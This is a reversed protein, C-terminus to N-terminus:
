FPDGSSFHETGFLPSPFYLSSANTGPPVKYPTLPPIQCLHAYNISDSNISTRRDDCRINDNLEHFQLSVPQRSHALPSLLFVQRRRSLTQGRRILRQGGGAADGDTRADCSLTANAVNRYVGRAPSETNCFEFDRV